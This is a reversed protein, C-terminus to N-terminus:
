NEEQVVKIKFLQKVQMMIVKKDLDEAVISNIQELQEPLLRGLPYGLWRAIATKAEIPNKFKTQEFPNELVFPMYAQKEESLKAASILGKATIDGNTLVSRPISIVKALQEIQDIQKEKSSKKFSRYIGFPIPGGVPYFTGYHQEKYSVRLENDFLGWLLTVTSGALEPLLQYKIGNINVCADNGVKRIEPERVLMTFHEWDCMAQFGEKPLNKKWDDLRSHTEIRHQHDNYRELYHRLWENAELLSQPPHLHYLTELSEKISRFSREIKGKSRATKRRGDSGDPLHTLIEINLHAMVRKFINSKAVSGNDTYITKPIGQFPMSPYKKASFANFLFKLATMVDEGYCYHYEQYKVGSRDDVVGLLMLKAETGSEEKPRDAIFGKFDSHSFDFQWCENSHQAQFRVFPPQIKLMSHELGFRRLYFSITSTKLLGKPAKILENGMEIGYDELIRICAANSLHRGKKNTSRLKLAAILKCYKKMEEYKILRPCNYDARTITSLKNYKRLYRYITAVSVGYFESAEKIILKREPDRIPMGSLKNHLMILTDDALHKTM